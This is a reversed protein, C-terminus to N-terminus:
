KCQPESHCQSLHSLCTVLTEPHEEGLSMEYCEAVEHTICFASLILPHSSAESNLLPFLSEMAQGKVESASLDNRNFIKVKGM